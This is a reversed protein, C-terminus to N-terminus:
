WKFVVFVLDEEGINKVGYGDWFVVYFFDGVKVKFVKGKVNWEGM